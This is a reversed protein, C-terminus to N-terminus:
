EQPIQYDYVLIEDDYRLMLLNNSWTESYSIEEKLLYEKILWAPYNAGAKYSLPYGGGFRPNIEIAIMSDTNKNLFVQVTLCGIAGKIYGIKEQLLPIIINKCTIGKSIEGGRIEIRRRPVICKVQNDKGYYMDVTYEDHEAKEIYEMFLLKENTMHYNTLEEPKRILFTDASLSGDYPKIFLPFELQEKDIAKPIRIGQEQFFQNIKRKDRCKNVFDSSSVVVQIGHKLFEEQHDALVQLETDITPVVLAIKNSTCIQLLDAIYEPETVRRVSFFGDSVNCAASFEPNLDSTFVKADKFVKNIETKFARVLSVRRGASTILINM